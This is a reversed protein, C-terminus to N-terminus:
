SQVGPQHVYDIIRAIVTRLELELWYRRDWLWCSRNDLTEVLDIRHGALFAM